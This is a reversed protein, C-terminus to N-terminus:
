RFARHSPLSTCAHSTSANWNAQGRVEEILSAGAKAPHTLDVSDLGCSRAIAGAYWGNSGGDGPDAIRARDRCQADHRRGAAVRWQRSELWREQWRMRTAHLANVLLLLITVIEAIVFLM